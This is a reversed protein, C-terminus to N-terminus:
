VLEMEKVCDSERDIDGFRRDWVNEGDKSMESVLDPVLVSLRDTVREKDFSILQVPVSLGGPRDRVAVPVFSKVMVFVFVDRVAGSDAVFFM